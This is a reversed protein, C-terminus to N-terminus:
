SFFTSSYMHIMQMQCGVRDVKQLNLRDARPGEGYISHVAGERGVPVKGLFPVNKVDQYSFYDPESIGRRRPFIFSQIFSFSHGKEEESSVSM